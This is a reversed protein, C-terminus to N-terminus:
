IMEWHGVSVAVFDNQFYHEEFRNALKDQM